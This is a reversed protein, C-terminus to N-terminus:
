NILNSLQDTLVKHRGMLKDTIDNDEVNIKILNSTAEVENRLFQTEIRKDIYELEEMLERKRKFLDPNYSTKKTEGM